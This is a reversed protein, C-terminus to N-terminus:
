GTRDTSDVSGPLTKLTRYKILLPISISELFVLSYPQDPVQM